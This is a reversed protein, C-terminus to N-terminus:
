SEKSICPTVTLCIVLERAATVTVCLSEPTKISLPGTSAMNSSKQPQESVESIDEMNHDMVIDYSRRHKKELCM